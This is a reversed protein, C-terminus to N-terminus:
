IKKGNRIIEIKQKKLTLFTLRKGCKPCKAHKIGRESPVPLKLVTKCKPCKKYVHNKDKFNRRINSFPKLLKNKIKIFKQNEASRKYINKSFIRFFLYLVVGLELVKFVISNVFLDIILLIFYLLFLFKYLEDCRAYRGYMFKQIKNIFKM